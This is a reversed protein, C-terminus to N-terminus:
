GTYQAFAVLPRAGTALGEARTVFADWPEGPMRQLDAPLRDGTAQLGMPEGAGARCFVILRPREEIAVASELAAIRLMM